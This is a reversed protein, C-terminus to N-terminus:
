SLAGAYRDQSTAYTQKHDCNACVYVNKVWGFSQNAPEILKLRLEGGCLACRTTPPPEVLARM